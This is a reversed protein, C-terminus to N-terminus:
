SADYNSSETMTGGANFVYMFELDKVNAFAGSDFAVHSRWAGVLANAAVPNVPQKESGACGVLFLGALIAVGASGTTRFRMSERDYRRMPRLAGNDASAFTTRM